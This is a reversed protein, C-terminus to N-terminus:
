NVTVKTCGPPTGQLEVLYNGLKATQLLEFQDVTLDVFAVPSPPPQGEPQIVCGRPDTSLTTVHGITPM